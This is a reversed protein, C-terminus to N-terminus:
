STASVAVFAGAAAAEEGCAAVSGGASNTMGSSAACVPRLWIFISCQSGRLGAHAGIRHFRYLERDGGAEWSQHDRGIAVALDRLHTGIQQDNRVPAPAPQAAPTAQQTPQEAPQKNCGSGLILFSLLVTLAMLSSSSRTVFGHKM